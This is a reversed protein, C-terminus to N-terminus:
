TKRDLVERIKAALQEITFPKPLFDTGPDLVGNHVVANRTYGTTFVVRLDPILKVAEDALQRGTLGPMVVDSFLLVAGQGNKMMKLAEDGSAAHVVTYGLDRLAEVGFNRVRLEDEVVFIVEEPRGGRVPGGKPKNREAIAEEGWYRPFYLKFTSGHGLESYVRVHGGSQRMFGFVQSLGLGTGKGVGKTTFFPDFARDLVEPTMGTGTDSVCILVYQGPSISASRAYEEDVYVNNTEITLKGGDPMADRANVTLNLLISELQNVDVRARWLGAGLVTELEIREGLARGFMDSLGAVLRNPDITEPNLPQQRSFALLRQTLTAARGAGELAADIYQGIEMEGRSIRRQCLNLAGIIVALMNNFDHAVGGSLQGVAEMKQLQRLQKEAEERRDSQSAIEGAAMALAAEQRDVHQRLRLMAEAREVAIWTSNAIEKALAIESPRWHRVSAHHLFIGAAWDGSNLLPICIAALVGEDAYTHLSEGHDHRSDSFILPQGRQRVRQAFEGFAHVSQEGSLVPLTGDSWGTGHQMRGRGILRYFGVRHVGLRQGLAEATLHIVEDPDSQVRQRAALEIVFEREDKEAELECVALVRETIDYSAGPFRVCRGLEDYIGRGQASVWVERGDKRLLRYESRFIDGSEMAHDIEAQVRELDEPHIGSFYEEIAAGKAAKDPDVGYLNAFRADAVVRNNPVDWDWIGISNGASLALHLREDAADREREAVIKATTEGTVCLLGCIQGKDDFAPSYTFTWWSEEPKGDRALDLKMDTVVRGEGALTSAVLPEIDTWISEWVKAFPKGLSDQLRWGLVPRYADNYFCLLDPGWALFMPMPCALM